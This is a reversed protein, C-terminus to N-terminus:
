PAHTNPGTGPPFIAAASAECGRLLKTDELAKDFLLMVPQVTPCNVEVKLLLSPEEALVITCDEYGPHSWSRGEHSPCLRDKPSPQPRACGERPQIPRTSLWWTRWGRRWMKPSSPRATRGDVFAPRITGSSGHLSASEGASCRLASCCAIPPCSGSPDRPPSHNMKFWRDPKPSPTSLPRTNLIFVDTPERCGTRGPQDTWAPPWASSISSWTWNCLTKWAALIPPESALPAGPEQREVEHSRKCRRDELPPCQERGPM